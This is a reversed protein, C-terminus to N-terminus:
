GLADSAEGCGEVAQLRAWTLEVTGSFGRWRCGSVTQQLLALAPWELGGGGLRLGPVAERFGPWAGSSQRSPGSCRAGPNFSVLSRWRMRGHVWWNLEGGVLNGVVGLEGFRGSAGCGRGRRLYAAIERRWKCLTGALSPPAHTSSRSFWLTKGVIDTVWLFLLGPVWKYPARSIFRLSGFAFRQKKKV